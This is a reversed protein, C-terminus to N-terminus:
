GICKKIIAKFNGGMYACIDSQKLGAHKMAGALEPLDPISEYDEMLKGLSGVGGGDTGLGVQATGIAAARRVFM